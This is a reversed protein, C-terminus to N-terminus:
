SYNITQNGIPLQNQDFKDKIVSENKWECM